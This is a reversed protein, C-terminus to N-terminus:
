GHKLDLVDIFGKVGPCDIFFCGEVAHGEGQVVAIKDRYDASVARSLGGEEVRHRPHPLHVLPADGDVSRVYGSERLVLPGFEDSPHELVGHHASGGGHLDLLIEGQGHAAALGAGEAGADGLRLPLAVPLQELDQVQAQLVAEGGLHAKEGSALALGECQQHGGELLGLEEQQILVGGGQVGLRRGLHQVGGLFDDLSVLEGRQHDGVIHPVSNGM